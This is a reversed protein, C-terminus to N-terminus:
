RDETCDLHLPIREERLGTGALVFLYELEDLEAGHCVLLICVALQKRVVHTKGCVALKQTGGAKIFEGFEEVYQLAVHRYDARPRLEHAVHHEHGGFLALTM